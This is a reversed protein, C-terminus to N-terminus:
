RVKGDTSDEITATTMIVMTTETTGTATPHITMDMGSFLPGITEDSRENM